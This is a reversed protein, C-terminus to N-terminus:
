RDFRREDGRMVLLQVDDSMLTLADAVSAISVAFSVKSGM